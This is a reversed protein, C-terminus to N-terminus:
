IVMTNSRHWITIYCDYSIIDSILIVNKIFHTAIQEGRKIYSHGRRSVHIPKLWQM